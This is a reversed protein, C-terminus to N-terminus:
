TSVVQRTSQLCKKGCSLSHALLTSDVLRFDSFIAYLSQLVNLLVFENPRNTVRFKFDWFLRGDNVPFSIRNSCLRWLFLDIWGCLLKQTRKYVSFQHTYSWKIPLYWRSIDSEDTGLRRKKSQQKITRPELASREINM